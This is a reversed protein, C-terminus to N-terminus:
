SGGKPEFPHADVDDLRQWLREAQALADAALADGDALVLRRDRVVWEGGVMVDRVHRSSLGFIWHGAFSGEHLPAPAAYDLVVLDAPAGPELTGLLPEDFLRGALRASDALRTLPWDAAPGGGDERLRFYATRSEEFMDSGIGDTGLALRGDLKAIPARGIANNMNSRANHAITAEAAAAEDIEGDDLHVGHALLTRDDLAGARALREVVRVGSRALSDWEDAEDEAAHVHLGTSLDRATGACAALTEDSLTFSAHAGVLGRVLPPRERRIRELFRRNEELGARAAEPGDRDSTEYCLVSRVGLSELASAIADLSGDIANPSAHHDVLTTTGSLLAEAGGVLASARVSPEDLARDLRWWVRQLIQVFNRPPELAYPMGRALASYLHTHACVNGPVVVVGDCDIRTGAGPEAIRGDAIWLDGDAVRAPDLASVVTM